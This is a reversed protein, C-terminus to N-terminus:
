LEDNMHKFKSGEFIFDDVALTVRLFEVLLFEEVGHLRLGGEASNIHGEVGFELCLDILNCLIAILDDLLLM